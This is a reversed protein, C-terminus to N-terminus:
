NSSSSLPHLYNTHQLFWKSLTRFTLEFDLPPLITAGSSTNLHKQSRNAIHAHQSQGLKDERKRNANRHQSNTTYWNQSITKSAHHHRRIAKQLWGWHIDHLTADTWQNKDKLYGHLQPLTAAERYATSYKGHITGNSFITMCRSAPLFPSHQMQIPYSATYTKAQLKTDKLLQLIDYAPKPQITGYQQLFVKMPQWTVVSPRLDKISESIQAIIDWDRALTSNCFPSAFQQSENILRIIRKNRNMITLTPIISSDVRTFIQIHHLFRAISLLGWTDARPRQSPGPCPGQCEALTDGDLTFLTWAFSTTDNEFHHDTIVYAAMGSTKADQLKWAAREASHSFTTHRILHQEWDPLFSIYQSFELSTTLARNSIQPHTQDTMPNTTLRIPTATLIHPNADPIIEIARYTIGQITTRHTAIHIAESLRTPRWTTQTDALFLPILNTIYPKLIWYGNQIWHYIHYGTTEHPERYSQRHPRFHTGLRTWPGLTSTPQLIMSKWINCMPKWITRVQHHSPRPQIPMYQLTNFWNPRQCNYMHPLIRKGTADVLESITTVHLHLRCYNLIRLANKDMSTNQIAWEMIHTDGVREPPMTYTRNLHIRIAASNLALRLSPIWRAESHPLLM